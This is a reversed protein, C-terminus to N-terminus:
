FNGADITDSDTSANGVMIPVFQTTGNVDRYIKLQNDDTDYFLDGEALNADGTPEDDQVYIQDALFNLAAEVTGVGATALTGEPNSFGLDAATVSSVTSSISISTTNASATVNTGEETIAITSATVEPTLTITTANISSM